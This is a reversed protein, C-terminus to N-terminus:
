FLVGATWVLDPNTSTAETDSSLWATTGLLDEYRKPEDERLIELVTMMTETVNELTEAVTDGQSGCGPLAPVTAFYGGTPDEEVALYIGCPHIFITRM